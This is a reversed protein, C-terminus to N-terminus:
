IGIEKCLTVRHEEVGEPTEGVWSCSCSVYEVRNGIDLRFFMFIHNLLYQPFCAEDKHVM